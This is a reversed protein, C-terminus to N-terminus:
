VLKRLLTIRGVTVWESVLIDGNALFIADHPHVFKGPLFQERAVGRLKSPHGDGLTAVIKNDKGLLFVVSHLDPVLLLEGRTKFHCPHRMGATVFGLHRGDLTFYQLRANARDAVVLKADGDRADIWLGHPCSVEGAGKGPRAIVQQFEGKANYRFVYSLGYGDGVYFDGNPAFAVNTPCWRKGDKYVDAEPPDSREWVVEGSLSTKVVLRRNTDCHYLFEEGGEKRVDLGHAGPRFSEGWARIFKGREDYVVVAEKRRSSEHVTHGVYIHGSADQCVAHTDGWALGDPPALWDHVCEYRHEGDGLVVQQTVTKRAAFVTPALIATSAAAGAYQLFSRRTLSDARM